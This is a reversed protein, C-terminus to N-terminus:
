LDGATQCYRREYEELMQEKTLLKKAWQDLLDHILSGREAFANSAQEELGEIRQLYFGYKCEDFSNLQSYSYVHNKDFLGM